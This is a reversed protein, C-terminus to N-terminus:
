VALILHNCFSKIHYVPSITGLVYEIEGYQELQSGSQQLQLSMIQAKTMGVTLSQIQHLEMQEQTSHMLFVSEDLPNWEDNTLYIKLLHKIEWDTPVTPLLSVSSPRISM